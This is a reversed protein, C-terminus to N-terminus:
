PSLLLAALFGLLTGLIIPPLGPMPQREKQNVFITYLAVFGLVAGVLTILSTFLNIKLCSVIFIAPLALDGTGLFMFETSPSVNQLKNFLGQFTQPIILAFHVKAQAMGQFIRVMHRTKYVAWFDYIALFLLIIIGASPTINLGFLVSIASISFVIVINHIFINQKFLWYVIIITMLILYYPWIFFAQCFIWLGEVIAIYFLLRILWPKNFYKLILFLILTAILFMAIFYWPSYTQDTSVPTTFETKVALNLAIGIAYFLTFIFLFLELWFSFKFYTKIDPIM